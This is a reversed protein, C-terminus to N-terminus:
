QDIGSHRLSVPRFLTGIDFSEKVEVRERRIMDERILSYYM